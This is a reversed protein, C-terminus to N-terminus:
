KVLLPIIARMMLLCDDGLTNIVMSLRLVCRPSSGQTKVSSIHQLIRENMRENLHARLSNLCILIFQGEGDETPSRDLFNNPPIFASCINNNNVHVATLWRFFHSERGGPSSQMRLTVSPFSSTQGICICICAYPYTRPNM